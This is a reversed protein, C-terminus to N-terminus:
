TDGTRIVVFRVCVLKFRNVDTNTSQLNLFVCVFKSLNSLKINVYAVHLCMLVIPYVRGSENIYLYSKIKNTHVRILYIFGSKNVGRIM